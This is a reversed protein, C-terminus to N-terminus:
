WPLVPVSQASPVGVMPSRAGSQAEHNVWWPLVPVVIREHYVWPLVPVVIRRM